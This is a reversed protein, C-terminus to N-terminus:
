AVVAGGGERQKERERKMKMKQVSNFQKMIRRRRKTNRLCCIPRRGRPRKRHQEIPIPMTNKPLFILLLLMSILVLNLVACSDM